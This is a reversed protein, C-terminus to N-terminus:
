QWSFMFVSTGVTQWFWTAMVESILAHESTHIITQLHAIIHKPISGSGQTIWGPTTTSSLMTFWVDGQTYVSLPFLSCGSCQFHLLSVTNVMSHTLRSVYQLYKLGATNTGIISHRIQL